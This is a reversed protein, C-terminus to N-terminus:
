RSAQAEFELLISVNGVLDLRKEWAVTATITNGVKNVEVDKGQVADAYDAALRRDMARRVSTVSLDRSDALSAELAKQITYYEIYSPLMRLTLLAVIVVVIATFLFSIMSLGRQSTRMAM